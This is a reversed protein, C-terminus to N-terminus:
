VDPLRRLSVPRLDYRCDIYKFTNFRYPYLKPVICLLSRLSKLGSWEARIVTKCFQGQMWAKYLMYGCNHLKWPCVLAMFIVARFNYRGEQELQCLYLAWLMSECEWVERKRFHLVDKLKEDGYIDSINSFLTNVGYYEVSSLQWYSISYM